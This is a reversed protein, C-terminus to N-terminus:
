RKNLQEKKQLFIALLVGTFDLLYSAVNNPLRVLFVDVHVIFVRAFEGVRQFHVLEPVKVIAFEGFNVIAATARRVRVGSRLENCSTRLKGRLYVPSGLTAHCADLVM